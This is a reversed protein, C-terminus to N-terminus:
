STRLSGSFRFCYSWFPLRMNVPAPFRAPPQFTLKSPLGDAVESVEAVEPVDEASEEPVGAPAPRGARAAGLSALAPRSTSTSTFMVKSSESRPISVRIGTWSSTGHWVHPPDPASGPVLGVSQGTQRPRPTTDSFWPTKARECGHGRQPPLPVTTSVGHWM